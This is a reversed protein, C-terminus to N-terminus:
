WQLVNQQCTILSRLLDVVNAQQLYQRKNKRIEQVVAIRRRKMEDDRWMEKKVFVQDGWHPVQTFEVAVAVGHFLQIIVLKM